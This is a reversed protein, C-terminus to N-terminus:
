LVQEPINDNERNAKDNRRNNGPWRHKGAHLSEQEWNYNRRGTNEKPIRRYRSHATHVASPETPLGTKIQGCAQPM